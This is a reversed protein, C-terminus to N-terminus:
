ETKEGESTVVKLEDECPPMKIKAVSTPYGSHSNFYFISAEGGSRKIAAAIQRRAKEIEFRIGELRLRKESLDVTCSDLYYVRTLNDERDEMSVPQFYGGVRIKELHEPYTTHLVIINDQQPMNNIYPGQNSYLPKWEVSLAEPNLVNLYVANYHPNISEDKEFDEETPLIEYCSLADLLGKGTKEDYKSECGPADTETHESLIRSTRAPAKPEPKEIKKVLASADEKVETTEKEPTKKSCNTFLSAGAGIAFSLGGIGLTRALRSRNQQVANQVGLTHVNPTALPANEVQRNKTNQLEM